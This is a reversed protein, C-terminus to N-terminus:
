TYMYTYMTSQMINGTREGAGVDDDDGGGVGGLAQQSQLSHLHRAINAGYQTDATTQVCLIVQSSKVRWTFTSALSNSAKDSAM